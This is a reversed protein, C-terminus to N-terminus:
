MASLDANLSTLLAKLSAAYYFSNVQQFEPQTPLYSLSNTAPNLSAINSGFLTDTTISYRENQLLCTGDLGTLTSAVTMTSTLSTTFALSLNGCSTRPNENFISVAASTSGNACSGPVSPVPNNTGVTTKSAIQDACAYLGGLCATVAIGSALISRIPKAM